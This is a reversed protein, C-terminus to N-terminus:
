GARRKPTTVLHFVLHFLLFEGILYYSFLNEAGRNFVGGSVVSIIRHQHRRAPTSGVHKSSKTVFIVRLICEM